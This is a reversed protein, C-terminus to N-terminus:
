SGCQYRSRRGLRDTNSNPSRPCRPCRHPYRSARSQKHGHHPDIDSNLRHCPRSSSLVRRDFTDCGSFAVPAFRSVAPIKASGVRLLSRRPRHSCSSTMRGGPPVNGRPTAWTPGGAGHGPVIPGPRARLGATWPPSRVPSHANRRAQDRALNQGWGLDGAGGFTVQEKEAVGCHM